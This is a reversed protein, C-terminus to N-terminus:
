VASNSGLGFKVLCCSVTLGVLRNKKDLSNRREHVLCNASSFVSELWKQEKYKLPVVNRGDKNTM